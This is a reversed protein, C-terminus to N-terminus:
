LSVCLGQDLLSSYHRGLLRSLHLSALDAAEFEKANECEGLAIFFSGVHGVAALFCLDAALDLVLGRMSRNAQTWPLQM